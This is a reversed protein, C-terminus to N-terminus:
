RSIPRSYIRYVKDQQGGFDQCPRIVDKNDVLLLSADGTKVGIRVAEEVVRLFMYPFAMGKKVEDKFGMYMARIHPSKRGALGIKALRAWESVIRSGFPMWVPAPSAYPDPLCGLMGVPEGDKELILLLEPNAITKLGKVMDDAEFDRIPAFGRRISWIENYLGVIIKVEDDLHNMRLPRVIYPSKALREELRVRMGGFKELFDRFTFWYTVYEIEVNTLGALGHLGEYYAPNHTLEISPPHDFGAVLLGQNSVHTANTLGGPGMMKTCGWDSCYGEAIDFLRQSIEPDNMSEFFGYHGAGAFIGGQQQLWRDVTVSIRGVPKRGDM